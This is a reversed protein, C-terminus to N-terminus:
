PTPQGASTCLPRKIPEVTFIAKVDVRDEYATFKVQLMDLLERRTAPFKVAKTVDKDEFGAFRLVTKHPMDVTRVMAGNENETNWAMSKLQGEWFRLLGQTRELEVCM